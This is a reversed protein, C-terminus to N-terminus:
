GVGYHQLWAIARAWAAEADARNYSPRYDAHFGHGADPFYVIEVTKGAAKARAEATLVDHKAISPDKGGYLGLLPCNLETAMDIPNRPQIASTPGAVPGYFAVAARLRHETEAFLWADRGGRCFGITGIRAADGQHAIAWDITTSLDSLVTADPAKLIVNRMILQADTMTSLDALRAYLEPAVALYGRKALRRCVDKIYDHVGFIEEIVVVIPFPGVGDPRAVYAPLAGDSVPIKTEGAMLGASDTHIVQAEVRTTALTLGSILSTMVFGRRSFSSVSENVTM